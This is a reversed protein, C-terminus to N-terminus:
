CMLASTKLQALLGVVGDYEILGSIFDVYCRGQGINWLITPLKEQNHLVNGPDDPLAIILVPLDSGLCIVFFVVWLYYKLSGTKKPLIWLHLLYYIERQMTITNQVQMCWSLDLLLAMSKPPLTNMTARLTHCCYRLSARFFCCDLSYWGFLSPLDVM